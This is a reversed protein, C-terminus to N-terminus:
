SPSLRASSRPQLRFSEWLASLFSNRRKCPLRKPCWNAWYWHFIPLVITIIVTSVGVIASHSFPLFTLQDALLNAFSQSASASTLFGSLTVGIQITSLFRSSNETLKVLKKAKQNGEEAMKKIKGDNLTIVAIESAAFFGNVLILVLLLAVSLLASQLDMTDVNGAAPAASLLNLM